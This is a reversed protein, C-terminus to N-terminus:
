RCAGIPLDGVDCSLLGELDGEAKDGRVEFEGMHCTDFIGWATRCALHERIIGTYRVPMLFGGFPVMKAGLEVHASYLPTKVHGEVNVRGL